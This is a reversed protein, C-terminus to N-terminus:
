VTIDELTFSIIKELDELSLEVQCGIKGGSFTITEFDAATINIITKFQKKMGFPSCGGHIYGTTPLLDKQKIMAISKEGVAKAAKKLDLEKLVPVVFVYNNKSKGETVLTKFVTEPNKELIKAIVDGSVAEKNDYHYVKYNIKNKDLIRIANTKEEKAM